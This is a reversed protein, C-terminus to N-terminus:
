IIKVHAIQIEVKIGDQIAESKGVMIQKVIFVVAGIQLFMVM